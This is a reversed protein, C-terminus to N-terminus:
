CIRTTTHEQLDSFMYSMILGYHPGLSLLVSIYPKSVFVLHFIYIYM